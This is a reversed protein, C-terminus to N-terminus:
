SGGSQRDIETETLEMARLRFLTDELIKRNFAILDAVLGILAVQFGVIVLIASLVVSQLHGPDRGFFLLLYRLGIVVGVLTISAGLATFVKLPRYMAYARIITAASYSVYHPLSRMLRSPRMPPNTRVPVFVVAMHRAGAQILTELTYSYDSLVLLRLAAARSLARFGSTADPVPLGSAQSVVWSGASQLWRKLPSFGALTKVGRDGVVLEARGQLIPEILTAIDRADYQNDADTNVIIDAGARLAAELGAAFAKALGVNRPLSLLHQVGAARAVAATGDRSGDDIVLVELCDIGSLEPPLAALTVPLTHEENYCPIQIILKM